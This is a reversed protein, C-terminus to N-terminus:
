TVLLLPFRNRNVRREPRSRRGSTCLLVSGWGLIELVVVLYLLDYVFNVKAAANYIKFRSTGTDDVCEVLFAIELTLIVLWFIGLVGCLALHAITVKSAKRSRSTGSVAMCFMMLTLTAALLLTEAIYSFFSFVDNFIDYLREVLVM